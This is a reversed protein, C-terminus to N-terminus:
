TVVLQGVMGSTAHGPQNCQVRFTGPRDLTVTQTITKGPEVPIAISLDPVTFSHLQAAINTLVFTVSGRPVKIPNPTFNYDKLTIRIATPAVQNAESLRLSLLIQRAKEEALNTALLYTVNKTNRQWVFYGIGTSSGARPTVVGPPFRLDAAFRDLEGCDVACITLTVASVGESPVGNPISVGDAAWAAIYFQRAGQDVDAYQLKWGCPLDFMAGLLTQATYCPSVPDIPSASQAPASSPQAAPADQTQTPEPAVTNPQGGFSTQASESKGAISPVASPPKPAFYVRAGLYGVAGVLVVIIAAATLLLTQATRNM